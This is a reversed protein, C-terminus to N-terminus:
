WQWLKGPERSSHDDTCKRGDDHERGGHATDAHGLGEVPMLAEMGNELGLGLGELGNALGLGEPVPVPVLALGELGNAQGLGPGEPVLV